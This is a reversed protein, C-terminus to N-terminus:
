ALETFRIEYEFASTSALAMCYGPLAHLLRCHVQHPPIALITECTNISALPIEYIKKGIAKLAAEKQTWLAIFKQQMMIADLQEFQKKEAEHLYDTTFYDQKPDIYEIDIGVPQTTCLALAIKDHSHSLSFHLGITKFFPQEGEVRVIDKLVDPANPMIEEVAKKLLLQSGIRNRFEPGAPYSGIRQRASEPFQALAQEPQELHNSALWVTIKTM